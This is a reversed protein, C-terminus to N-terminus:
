IRDSDYFSLGEGVHAPAVRLRLCHPYNQHRQKVARREASVAYPACRSDNRM